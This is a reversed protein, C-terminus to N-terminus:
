TGQVDRRRRSGLGRGLGTRRQGGKDARQRFETDVQATLADRQDLGDIGQFLRNGGAVQGLGLGEIPRGTGGVLTQGRGGLTEGFQIVRDVGAGVIVFLALLVRAEAAEVADLVAQELLAVEVAQHRDGLMQLGIDGVELLLQQGLRQRRLLQDANDYAAQAAHGIGPGAAAFFLAVAMDVQVAEGGVQLGRLLDDVQHPRQQDLRGAIQQHLDVIGGHCEVGFEVAQAVGVAIDGVVGHTGRLALLDAVLGLGQGICVISDIGGEAKGAQLCASSVFMLSESCLLASNEAWRRRTRSPMPTAPAARAPLARLQGAMAALWACAWTVSAGLLSLVSSRWSKWPLCWVPITVGRGAAPMITEKSTRALSLSSSSRRNRVRFLRMANRILPPGTFCTSSFSGGRSEPIRPGTTVGSLRVM